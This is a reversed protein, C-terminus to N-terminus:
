QGGIAAIKLKPFGAMSATYMVKKILHYSLSSDALLLIKGDTNKQAEKELEAYLPKIFQSDNKELDKDLFSGENLSAISRSGIKLERASLSLQLSQVPNTQVSSTPLQVDKDIEMTVDSSAYTQLLFVLLITFMDTMSTINLAFSSTKAPSQYRKRRYGM